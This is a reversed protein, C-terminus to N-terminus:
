GRVIWDEVDVAVSTAVCPSRERGYDLGILEIPRQDSHCNPRGWCTKGLHYHHGQPRKKDKVFQCCQRRRTEHPEFHLHHDHLEHATRAYECRDVASVLCSTCNM